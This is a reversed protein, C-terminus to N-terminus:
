DAVPFRHSGINDAVGEHCSTDTTTRQEASVTITSSASVSRPVSPFPRPSSVFFHKVTLLTVTLQLKM